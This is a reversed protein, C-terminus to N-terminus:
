PTCGIVAQIQSAAAILYDADSSSITKNRQADVLGIFSQLSGCAAV